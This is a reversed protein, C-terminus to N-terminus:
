SANASNDIMGGASTGLWDTLQGNDNRWLIDDRGDGNFDGTGVVHWSAPVFTSFTTSSLFGGTSTGLWDTIQGTDNRWLIDSRGDGNFDNSADHIPSLMLQVGNVAASAVLSGSITSALALSGGAYTLTNGSLSFTFGSLSADTFVIKDGVGFDM